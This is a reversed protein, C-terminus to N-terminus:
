RGLDASRRPRGVFVPQFVPYCPLLYNYFLLIYFYQMIVHYCSVIQYIWCIDPYWILKGGGRRPDFSCISFSWIWHRFCYPAFHCVNKDLGLQDGLNHTMPQSPNTPCQPTPFIWLNDITICFSKIATELEKYRTLSAMRRARNPDSWLHNSNTNNNLREYILDSSHLKIVSCILNKILMNKM